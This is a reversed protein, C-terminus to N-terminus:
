RSEANARSAFFLTQPLELQVAERSHRMRLALGYRHWAILAGAALVCVLIGAIISLRRRPIASRPIQFLHFLGFVAAGLLVGIFVDGVETEVLEPPEVRFILAALFLVGGYFGTAIVLLVLIIKRIVSKISNDSAQM